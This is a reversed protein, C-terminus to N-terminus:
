RFYGSQKVGTDVAPAPRYYDTMSFYCNTFTGLFFKRRKPANTVIVAMFM